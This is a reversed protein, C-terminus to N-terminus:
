HFIIGHYPHALLCLKVSLLFLSHSSYSVINTLPTQTTEACSTANLPVAVVIMCIHLDHMMNNTMEYQM